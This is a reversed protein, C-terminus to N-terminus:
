RRVGFYGPWYRYTCDCEHDANQCSTADRETPMQQIVTGDYGVVISNTTCSGGGIAFTSSGCFQGSPSIIDVRQECTASNAGKM